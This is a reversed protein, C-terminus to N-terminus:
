RTPTTTRTTCCAASGLPVIRSSSSPTDRARPTASRAHRRRAGRWARVRRRGAVVVGVSVAASARRTMDCNSSYTESWRRMGPSTTAMTWLAATARGAPRRWRRAGPAAGPTAGAAARSRRGQGPQEAGEVRRERALDFQQPQLLLDLLVHAPGHELVLALEVQLLLELGDMAFEPLVVVVQGIELRLHLALAQGLRDLRAREALQALQAAHRGDRGSLVTDRLKTSQTSARGHVARVSSTSSTAWARRM